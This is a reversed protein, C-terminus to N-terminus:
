LINCLLINSQIFLISLICVYVKCIYVYMICLIVYYVFFTIPFNDEPLQSITQMAWTANLLKLRKLRTNLCGGSSIKM